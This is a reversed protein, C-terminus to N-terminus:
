CLIYTASLTNYKQVLPNKQLDLDILWDTKLEPVHGM